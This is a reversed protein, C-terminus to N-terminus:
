YNKNFKTSVLNINSGDDFLILKNKKDYIRIRDKNVIASRHSYIFRDDLMEYLEVLTKNVTIINYSTKILCKRDKNRIIYIIDKTEITYLINKDKFRIINKKNINSLAYKITSELNSQYNDGKDIIDLFMFRSKILEKLYKDFYATLFIMMSEIDNDRIIRAVEIGSRTPTEIDLIYIKFSLDKNLINMFDNNYDNFKYIKYEVDNTIMVKDIINCIDKVYIDIDDCVIFNIM